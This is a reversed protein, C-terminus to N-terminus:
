VRVERKRERECSNIVRSFPESINQTTSRIRMWATGV